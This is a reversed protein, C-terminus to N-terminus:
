GRAFPCGGSRRGPPNERLWKRISAYCMARVGPPKDLIEDATRGTVVFIYHLLASEGGAEIM